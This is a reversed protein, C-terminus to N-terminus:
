PQGALDVALADGARTVVERGARGFADDIAATVASLTNAAAPQEASATWTALAKRDRFRAVTATIAVRAVPLGGASYDAELRTVELGLVHTARFSGPDAEVARVRGSGRISEVLAAQIVPGADGSWRAGAYYDFRNGSWRTAIRETRLVPPVVPRLVLLDAALEPGTEAAPASLVYIAPEPANRELKPACAALLLVAATLVISRM